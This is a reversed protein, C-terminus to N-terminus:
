PSGTADVTPPPLSPELTFTPNATPAPSQDPSPEPTVDGPSAAPPPPETPSPAAPSPEPSISPVALPSPEPSLTPIESPSADPSFTPAETEGAPLTPSPGPPVILLPLQVLGSAVATATAAVLLLTSLLVWRVPAPILRGASARGARGGRRAGMTALRAIEVADFPRVGQESYTWLEDAVYREFRPNIDQEPM